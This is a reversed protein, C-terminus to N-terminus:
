TEADENGPAIIPGYRLAEGLWETADRWKAAAAAIWTYSDRDASDPEWNGTEAWYILGDRVVLRAEFIISEYNEPAPALNFRTVGEFLLEIASLPRFQRQILLRVRTTPDVAMALDESVWHGTWVHAEKVCADHFNGFQQLLAEADSQTAIVNWLM